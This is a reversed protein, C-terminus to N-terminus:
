LFTVTVRFVDDSFGPDPALVRIIECFCTAVLIRIDKDKHQLLGHKVLSDSLPQIVSNLSKLQKFKGLAIVAEQLSNLEILTFM